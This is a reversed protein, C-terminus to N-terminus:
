QMMQNKKQSVDRGARMIEDVLLLQSAIVTASNISHRIVRYQDWIGEEEPSIPEGTTLDLGVVHGKSYEEQLKVLTDVADFGSNKALTKPIILLAEAFIEVGLKQRGSVSTKYKQLEACAAIQFAGAGPVVNGDEITNKVARLGDRVADQLQTITHKNPGKILITCSFPNKVGEIFTWKDDGMQFESYEDAWGLDEPTLDDVSNVANGGCALILREMNRRKARRLAVIGERSLLELSLPDVGKQNIVVFTKDTGDCVKKKL